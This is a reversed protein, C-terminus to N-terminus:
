VDTSVNVTDRFGNMSVGSVGVESASKYPISRSVELRQLNVASQHQNSNNGTHQPENQDKHGETVIALRPENIQTYTLSTYM